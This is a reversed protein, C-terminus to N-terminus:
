KKSRIADAKDNQDTSSYLQILANTNSPDSPNIKYAREFFPQAKLFYLKAQGMLKDYKAKANLPLENAEKTIPVARNFYLAGMNYLLDFNDPTIDLAKNYNTEARVFLTDYDAPKPLDTGKDDRPNARHDYIGGLNIYLSALLNKNKDKDPRQELKNISLMLNGEAKEYNHKTIYYNTESIILQMDDPFLARGKEIYDWAKASDKQKYYMSALSQYTWAKGFKMDLMRQYYMIAVTTNGGDAAANAALEVTEIYDSDSAQALKLIIMVKQSLALSTAYNHNNYDCSAKNHLYVACTPLNTPEIAEQAYADKSPVLQVVRIFSNAAICLNNTDLKSYAASTAKVINKEGSKMEKSIIRNLQRGFLTIYVEGRYLYMKPEDKTKDNVSAEDISKKAASLETSDGHSSFEDLHMRASTVKNNQALCQLYCAIGILLIATKKM